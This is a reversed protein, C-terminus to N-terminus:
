KSACYTVWQGADYDPNDVVFPMQESDTLVAKVGAAGDKEAAECITLKLAAPYTTEAQQWVEYLEADEDFVPASSAPESPEAAPKESSCGVACLLVVATASVIRKM